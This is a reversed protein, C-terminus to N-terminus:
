KWDRKLFLAIDEKPLESWDRQFYRTIYARVQGTPDNVQVADTQIRVRYMPLFVGQFRTRESGDANEVAVDMIVLAAGKVTDPRYSSESLKLSESLQTNAIQAHMALSWLYFALLGLTKKM